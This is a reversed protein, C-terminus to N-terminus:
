ALVGLVFWLGIANGVFFSVATRIMAAARARDATAVPLAAYDFRTTTIANM